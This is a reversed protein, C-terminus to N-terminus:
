AYFNEFLNKLLNMGYIHSKEPHFQFGIINEKQISSAFKFGYETWTLVNSESCKAYYSHVFYFRSNEDIIINSNLDKNLYINPDYNLMTEAFTYIPNEKLYTMFQTRNEPKRKSIM